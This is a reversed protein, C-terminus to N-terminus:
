IGTLRGSKLVSRYRPADKQKRGASSSMTKREYELEAIMIVRLM